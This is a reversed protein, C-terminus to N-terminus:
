LPRARSLLTSGNRGTECRCLKLKPSDMEMRFEGVLRLGGYSSEPGNTKFNQIKTLTGKLKEGAAEVENDHVHGCSM